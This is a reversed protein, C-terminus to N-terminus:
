PTSKVLQKSVCNFLEKVKVMSIRNNKSNGTVKDCAENATCIGSGDTTITSGLGGDIDTTGWGDGGDRM